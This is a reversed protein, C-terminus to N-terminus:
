RHRRTDRSSLLLSLSLSLNMKISDRAGAGDLTVACTQIQRQCPLPFFSQRQRGRRRETETHTCFTSLSVLSLTQSVVPRQSSDRDNIEKCLPPFPSFISVSFLFQVCTVLFLLYIFLFLLFCRDSLQFLLVSREFM